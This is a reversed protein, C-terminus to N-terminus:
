KRIKIGQVSEKVIQKKVISMGFKKGAWRGGLAGIIIFIADKGNFGLLTIYIGFSLGNMM